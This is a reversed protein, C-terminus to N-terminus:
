VEVSLVDGAEAFVEALLTSNISYPLNGVYIRGAEGGPGSSKPENEEQEQEQALEPEPCEEDSSPIDNELEPGDYVSTFRSFHTSLPPSSLLSFSTFNHFQIKLKLPQKNLNKSYHTSFRTPIPIPSHTISFNSIKNCLSSCSTANTAAM